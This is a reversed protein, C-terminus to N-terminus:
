QFDDFATVTVEADAEGVAHREADGVADRDADLLAGRGCGAVALAFDLFALLLLSRKAYM